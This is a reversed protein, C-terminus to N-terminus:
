CVMRRNIDISNKPNWGQNKNESSQLEIKTDCKSCEIIIVASNGYRHVEDDTVKL